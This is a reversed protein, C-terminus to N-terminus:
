WNLYETTFIKVPSDIKIPLFGTLFVATLVMILNVIRGRAAFCFHIWTMATAPVVLIARDVLCLASAVFSGM